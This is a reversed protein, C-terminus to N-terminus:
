SIKTVTMLIEFFEGKEGSVNKGSFLAHSPNIM